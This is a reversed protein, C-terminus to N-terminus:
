SRKRIKVVMILISTIMIETDFSTDGFARMDAKSQERCQLLVPIKLLWMAHHIEQREGM